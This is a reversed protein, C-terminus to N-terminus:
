APVPSAELVRKLTACQIAFQRKLIPQLLPASIRPTEVPVRIAPVPQMQPLASREPLPVGQYLGFLTDYEPDLDLSRLLSRTPRKEVCIDLNEVRSRFEEPLEAIIEAALKKLEKDTM